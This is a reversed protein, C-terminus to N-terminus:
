SKETPIRRKVAKTITDVHELRTIDLAGRLHPNVVYFGTLGVVYADGEDESGFNLDQEKLWDQAQKKTVKGRGVIFARCQSVTLTMPVIGFQELIEVRVVGGLEALGTVSSSHRSFAYGEIAVEDVEFERIAAHVEDRIFMLREIKQQDTLSASRGSKSKTAGKAKFAVTQTDFRFPKDQEGASIICMGTSSLSLDLGLVTKTEKM